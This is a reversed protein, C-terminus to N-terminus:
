TLAMNSEVVCMDEITEGEMSGSLLATKTTPLLKFGEVNAVNLLGTCRVLSDIGTNSSTLEGPIIVLM